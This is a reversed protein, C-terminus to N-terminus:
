QYGKLKEDFASALESKQLLPVYMFVVKIQSLSNSAKVLSHLEEAENKIAEIYELTPKTATKVAASNSLIGVPFVASKILDDQSTNEDFLARIKAYNPTGKPIQPGLLLKQNKLFGADLHTEISAIAAKAAARGDEYFKSEGLWIEVSSPSPFRAHVLDFSKIIENASSKYFVRQSIPITGFFERCMAHLAIEGVEGRAKYNESTYVRIAAQSLKKVIESHSINLDEEPLAYEPLWETLHRAFQACRWSGAEFGVCFVEGGEIPNLFRTPKHDYVSM